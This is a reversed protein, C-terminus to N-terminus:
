KVSLVDLAKEMLRNNREKPMFDIFSLTLHEGCASRESLHLSVM